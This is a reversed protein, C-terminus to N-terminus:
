RFHFVKGSKVVHKVLKGGANAIVEFAETVCGGCWARKPEGPRVTYQEWKGGLPRINFQIDRRGNNVIGIENSGIPRSWFPSVGGPDPPQIMEQSLAPKTLAITLGVLLFPKYRANM